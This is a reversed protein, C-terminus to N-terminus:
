GRLRKLERQQNRAPCPDPPRADRGNMYEKHCHICIMPVAFKPYRNGEADTSEGIQVEKGTKTFQHQWNRTDMGETAKELISM